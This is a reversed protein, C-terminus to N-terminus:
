QPTDKSTGKNEDLCRTLEATQTWGCEGDTQRECKANKNYCAYEEKWECTTIVNEDTCVQSSCGGRKCEKKDTTQNTSLLKFTSLIKDGSEGIVRFLYMKKDKSVYVFKPKGPSYDIVRSKGIQGSITAEESPALEYKGESTFDGWIFPYYWYDHHWDDITLDNPNDFVWLTFPNVDYNGDNGLVVVAGLFKGPEYQIYGKFNKRFDGNNRKNFEEESDEKATLDKSYKFSFRLSQDLYDKFNPPNPLNPPNSPNPSNLSRYLYGGGGILM